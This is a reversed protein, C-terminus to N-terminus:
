ERRGAKGVDKGQVMSVLEAEQGAFVWDAMEVARQLMALGGELRRRCCVCIQDPGGDAVYVIGAQDAKLLM